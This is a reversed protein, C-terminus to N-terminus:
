VKEGVMEQLVLELNYLEDMYSDSLILIKHMFNQGGDKLLEEAIELVKRGEDGSNLYEQILLQKSDTDALTLEGVCLLIDDVDHNKYTITEVLDAGVKDTHIDWEKEHLLIEEKTNEMMEFLSPTEKIIIRIAQEVNCYATPNLKM